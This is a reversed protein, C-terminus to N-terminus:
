KIQYIPTLQVMGELTYLGNARSPDRACTMLLSKWFQIDHCRKKAASHNALYTDHICQRDEEDTRANNYCADTHSSDFCEDEYMDRVPTNEMTKHCEREIEDIDPTKM